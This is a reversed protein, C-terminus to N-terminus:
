HDAVERRVEHVVRLSGENEDCLLARIKGGFVNCLRRSWLPRATKPKQRHSM